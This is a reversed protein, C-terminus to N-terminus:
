CKAVAYETATQQVCENVQELQQIRRNSFHVTKLMECPYRSQRYNNISTGLSLM